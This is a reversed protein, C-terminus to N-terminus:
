SRGREEHALLPDWVRRALAGFRTTETAAPHAPGLLDEFTMRDGYVLTLHPDDAGSTRLARRADSLAVTEELGGSRAAAYAEGADASLPLPERLALDYLTVLDTLLALADTPAPATLTSRAAGPRRGPARGVTVARAVRPGDGIGTGDGTTGTSATSNTTGTCATASTTETSATASTTGTSATGSTTGTAATAALLRVWARLRQRAGLQSYGADVLTGGYVGTLTGTLRRGDPLPVSVEVTRPAGTRLAAAAVAVPDVARGIDLLTATGLELPPAQGRRREADLARAPPVGALAAALLREGIARRQLSDLALPLRDTVEEAEGPVAIRLRDRVLARVPRELTDLLDELGIGAEAPLPALPEDLFGPRSSAPHRAVAAARRAASDFSFPGAVGLAGAEFNRPDFSQLPHRVVVHERAPRGDRTGTADLADLLEAVPVAPPRAAGTRVDAGTHVVVLADQAATVADLFLQRDELRRDREGVRPRRLLVDDGDAAEARPFAGDDMGLLCVVRHPVHRMPELSCVTLDGTRFGARTPRGRLAPALLAHLDAPRLPAAPDAAARAEGLLTRAEVEQRADAPGSATLADLTEQMVEFWAAAPRPADDGFAALAAGLRALYEAFRGVLDIDSSTVDDLPLAAGLFRQDEDAMAVGLLLRDLAAAWTGQGVGPLGFRERRAADEGWHAGADVAWRRVRALQEDDWGFRRRVPPAGALDLVASATVRSGALELVAALVGLLPNTRRLSRDAVSVRLRHGPHGDPSTGQGFAAAVLPAFAEVDPCMVVIDRPELTPDRQLLGILAERLVEVQRPRGHCAYVRVSVDDAAIPHDPPADLDERIRRQLAALLHPEPGPSAGPATAAGPRGAHDIVTPGHATLCLQLETVDRAMSALLPHRAPLTVDARRPPTTRTGPGGPAGHIRDVAARLVPSPHAIWLHVARHVSLAALIERTEAPLRTPGFVSIRAPLDVATPDDRLLAVAEALREAPAPADIRARVRRWLEPQWALDPPLPLGTDGGGDRDEGAAWARVLDPRRTGYAHFLGAVHDAVRLRRRGRHDAPDPDGDLGLHRGLPACWPEAACADIVELVAWTLRDRRWPDDDRGPALVTELVAACLRPPADFRVNACIGLRHSLRQAVWREVGPTPVAVVEPTLPDDPPVALLDGLAEVLAGAGTALHLALGTSGSPRSAIVRGM